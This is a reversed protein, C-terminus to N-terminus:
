GTELKLHCLNYWMGDHPLASVLIESETMGNAPLKYPENVILVTRRDFSFLHLSIEPDELGRNEFIGLPIPDDLVHRSSVSAIDNGSIISALGGIRSKGESAATYGDVLQQNTPLPTHPFLILYDQPAYGRYFSAIAVAGTGGLMSPFVSYETAVNLEYPKNSPAVDHFGFRAFNGPMTREFWTVIDKGKLAPPLAEAALTNYARVAANCVKDRSGPELRYTARLALRAAPPAADAMVSLLALCCALGIEAARITAPRMYTDDEQNRVLGTM